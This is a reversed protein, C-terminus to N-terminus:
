GHLKDMDRKACMVSKRLAKISAKAQSTDATVVINLTKDNLRPGFLRRLSRKAARVLHYLGKTPRQKEYSQWESTVDTTEVIAQGAIRVGSLAVLELRVIPLNNVSHSFTVSRVGRIQQDGIFVTTGTAKAEPTEIRIPQVKRNSEPM